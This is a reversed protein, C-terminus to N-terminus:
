RRRFSQKCLCRMKQLQIQLNAQKIRLPFPSQPFPLLCYPFSVLWHNPGGLQLVIIEQEGQRRVGGVWFFRVCMCWTLERHGYVCVPQPEAIRDACCSCPVLEAPLFCFTSRRHPGLSFGKVWFTKREKVVRLPELIM